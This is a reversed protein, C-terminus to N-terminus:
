VLVLYHWLLAETADYDMATQWLSDGPSQALCHSASRVVLKM